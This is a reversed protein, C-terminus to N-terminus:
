SLTYCHLRRLFPALEREGERLARSLPELCGLRFRGPLSPTRSDRVLGKGPRVDFHLRRLLDPPPPPRAADLALLASQSCALLASQLAAPLGAARHLAAVLRAPRPLAPGATGAIFPELAPAAVILEGLDAGLGTILEFHPSLDIPEECLLALSFRNEVASRHM